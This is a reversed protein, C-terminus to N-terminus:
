NKGAVILFILSTEAISLKRFCIMRRTEHLFFNQCFVQTAPDQWIAFVNDRIEWIKRHDDENDPRLQTLKLATNQLTTELDDRLEGLLIQLCQIVNYMIDRRFQRRDDVSWGGDEDGSHIIKMQKIFTSKGAEGCGLLLLKIQNQLKKKEQRLQDNIQKNIRESEQDDHDVSMENDSKYCILDACPFNM